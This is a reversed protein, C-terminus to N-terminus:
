PLELRAVNSRAVAALDVNRGRWTVSTAGANGIVMRLPPAGDVAATEGAQLTRSFVIQGRADLVEVWTTGTAALRLGAASSPALGAGAAPAVAPSALGPSPPVSPSQPAASGVVAASAPLAVSAAPAMTAASAPVAMAPASAASGSAPLAPAIAPLPASAPASAALEVTTASDGEWLSAPLLWIVVAAVMLLASGVLLPRIAAGALGADDRSGRSRFPENLTGGVQELSTSDPRPLLALVPRADIRLARCVSQALARTFAADPLEDHRDAELAELRRPPVKLAAALAVLHLGQKERAARLLSGATDRSAGAEPETM